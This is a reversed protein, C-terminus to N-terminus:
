IKIFYLMNICPIDIASSDPTTVGTAVVTHTHTPETYVDTNGSSGTHGHATGSASTGGGTINSSNSTHTHAAGAATGTGDAKTLTTGAGGGTTFAGINYSATHSHSLTNNQNLTGTSGSHYHSGAVANTTLTENSTGNLSHSHVVSSTSNSSISPSSNASGYLYRRSTRFDPVKFNTNNTGGYINGIVDFLKQYAAYTVANLVRGDCPILGASICKADTDYSTLLTPASAKMILAGSPIFNNVSSTTDIGDKINLNVM